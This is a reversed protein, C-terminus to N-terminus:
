PRQDGSQDGNETVEADDLDALAEKAREADEVRVYVRAGSALGTMSPFAGGANDTAISADIGLSELHAVAIEASFTSGYTAIEIVNSM